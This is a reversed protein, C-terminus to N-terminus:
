GPQLQIPYTVTVIGGEPPPFELQRFGERICRTVGCDPLVTGEAVTASSVKGDQAIVFLVTVRGRLDGHRGLGAEYCSRFLGYHQRVIKRILEADLRGPADAAQEALQEIPPAELCARPDDLPVVPAPSATPPAAPPAPAKAVCALASTLGVSALIALWSTKM